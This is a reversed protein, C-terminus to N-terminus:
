KKAIVMKRAQKFKGATIQYFYIGEALGGAEFHITNQGASFSDNAIEKVLRGQSNYLKISANGGDTLYFPIETGGMVPNPYNQGLNNTNVTGNHEDTGMTGEHETEFFYLGEYFSQNNTSGALLLRDDEHPVLGAGYFQSYEPGVLFEEDGNGSADVTVLTPIPFYGYYIIHPYPDIIEQNMIYCKDDGDLHFGNYFRSSESAFNWLEEGEPSYKILANHIEGSIALSYGIVAIDGTSFQRLTYSRENKNAQGFSQSWLVEGEASVKATVIDDFYTESDQAFGNTYISGDNAILLDSGSSSAGEVPVPTVWGLTGDAAFKVVTLDVSQSIFNGSGSVGTLVLDGAANVKGANIGYINDNENDTQAYTTWQVEGASNLKVAVFSAHEDSENEYAVGSLYLSGDPGPEMVYLQPNTLEIETEWAEDGSPSLKKVTLATMDFDPLLCVYLNGDNDARGIIGNSQNGNALNYVKEWALHGEADHKVIFYNINLMNDAFTFYNGTSLTNGNHDPFSYLMSAAPNGLNTYMSSWSTEPSTAGFASKVTEYVAGESTYFTNVSFFINGDSDLGAGAMGNLGAFGEPSSVVFAAQGILNGDPSYKKARAATDLVGEEAGPTMGRAAVVPNGATDFLLQPDFADILDTNEQVWASIGEPSYAILTNGDESFGGRHTGAVYVVDDKVAIKYAQTRDTGSKYTQIWQQVGDANYKITGFRGLFTDFEGTVYVNGDDDTTVAHPISNTVDSPNEPDTSPYNYSQVWLEEGAPSYKVTHYNAWGAPNPNYGTVIVNGSGDVAIATAENWSGDEELASWAEQGDTNYKLTIYDLTDGSWSIGTIYTNGHTDAVIASPVDLGEGTGAYLAEWTKSGDAVDYKVTRIDVDNGNWSLGTVVLDGNSDLVLAMGYEVAYKAATERAEWLITGAPDVKITFFDGAPQEPNSSGGTVYTNGDADTVSAMPINNGKDATGGYFDYDSLTTLTNQRIGLALKMKDQPNYTFADKHRSELKQWQTLRALVGEKRSIEFGKQNEPSSIDQAMGTFPLAATVIVASIFQTFVRM